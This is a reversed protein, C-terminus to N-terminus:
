MCTLWKRCTMAPHLRFSARIRRIKGGLKPSSPKFHNSRSGSPLMSLHCCNASAKTARQLVLVMVGFSTSWRRLTLISGLSVSFAYLELYQSVTLSIKYKGDVQCDGLVLAPEQDSM